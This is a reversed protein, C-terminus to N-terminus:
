NKFAVNVLLKEGSVRVVNCFTRDERRSFDLDIRSNGVNLNRIQLHDLWAPLQPNFINLEKRPASPRLGLISTLILFWSGSAWAQPSCSVPYHVPEDQDRRQVGCFLEPLRYDRFNLAAEFLSTMVHLAPGRFGNLAMGHAILANDHPWVSGRHYSLPNFTPEKESLTRWGWGSFMDPQMLRKVILRARERTVARSFLLHGPNSSVIEVRKKENDLAIAYYSSDVMWYSELRRAMALAERKLKDARSTDGFSRLLSAMRFKADYVYGQIEIPAIPSAPLSGDPRMNADWSDKWSQNALGKPSRRAYELFGDKDLDGHQDIWELAKYAAPLLERVLEENATWNYTESLLILFLPTSDLSGFYPSFPMEGARTMEGQRYEHLIKGPEEDRWNNNEKGQHRALVRLTDCALQPDLLLAQFSAILSDRGFMTAFWPIGAAVIGESGDSIKLSHFDSVATSLVEDFIGHSSSFHTVNTEWRAYRERRENLCSSFHVTSNSKTQKEGIMPHVAIDIRKEEGAGLEFEWYGVRDELSTPIPSMEIVTQRLTNDLGRYAFVLCNGQRVSRYFQGHQERKMGRVEFVDAFDADFWLEVSLKVLGRNFNLFTLRDFFAEPSILQQRRIHVTNEPLDFSERVNARAATLEIQSVFTKETSSSLIIAQRRNVRLELHSLFRTDHFFFGVESAGPPMIDGAVNTSLFTKGDILTLNETKRSPEQPCTAEPQLVPPRGSIEELKALPIPLEINM